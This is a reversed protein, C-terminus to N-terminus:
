QSRDKQHEYNITKLIKGLYLIYTGPTYGWELRGKLNKSSSIAYCEVIVQPRKKRYGHSFHIHFPTGIKILHFIFPELRKDWFPKRDRYEEKKQGAAIMDFWKKKLPLHLVPVSNKMQYEM